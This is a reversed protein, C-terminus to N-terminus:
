FNFFLGELAKRSVQWLKLPNGDVELLCEGDHNLGPKAEFLPKVEMGIRQTVNISDSSFEFVVSTAEMLGIMERKRTVIVKGKVQTNLEFEIDKRKLKNAAKVDGDLLEVLIHVIGDM